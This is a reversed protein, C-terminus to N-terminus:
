FAVYGGHYHEACECYDVTDGDVIEQREGQEGEVEVHDQPDEEEDEQTHQQPKTEQSDIELPYEFHDQDINTEAKFGSRHALQNQLIQSRM